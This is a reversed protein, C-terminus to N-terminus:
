KAPRVKGGNRGSAYAQAATLSTFQRGTYTEKGDADVIWVQHYVQAGAQAGQTPNM